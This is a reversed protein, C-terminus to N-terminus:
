LAAHISHHKKAGVRPYWLEQVSDARSCSLYRFIAASDRLILSDEVM